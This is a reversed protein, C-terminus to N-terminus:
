LAWPSPLDLVHVPLSDHAGVHLADNLVHGLAGLPLPLDLVSMFLITTMPVLM